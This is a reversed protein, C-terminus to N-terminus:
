CKRDRHSRRGPQSFAIKATDNGMVAVPSRHEEDIENFLRGGVLEINFIQQISPPNGQLIVNKARLDGRRVCAPASASNLRTRSGRSPAAAEVHPLQAM